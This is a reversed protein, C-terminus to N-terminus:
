FITIHDYHTKQRGKVLNEKMHTPRFRVFQDKSSVSHPRKVLWDNGLIESEIPKAKKHPVAMLAKAFEDAMEKHQSIDIIGTVYVDPSGVDLHQIKLPLSTQHESAQLKEKLMKWAEDANKGYFLECVDASTASLSSSSEDIVNLNSEKPVEKPIVEDTAEPLVGNTHPESTAEPVSPTAPASSTPLVVLPKVAVISEATTSTTDEDPVDENVSDNNKSSKIPSQNESSQESQDISVLELGPKPSPCHTSRPTISTIPTSITQSLGTVSGSVLTLDVVQDLVSLTSVLAERLDCKELNFTM